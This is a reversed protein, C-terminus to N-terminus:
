PACAQRRRSAKARLQELLRANEKAFFADELARAANHLSSLEM